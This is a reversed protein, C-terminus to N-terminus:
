LWLKVLFIILCRKFSNSILFIFWLAIVKAIVVSMCLILSGLVLDLLDGSDIASWLHPAGRAHCHRWPTHWVDICKLARWVVESVVVMHFTSYISCRTILVNTWILSVRKLVRRRSILIVKNLRFIFFLCFPNTRRHSQLEIYECVRVLLDSCIYAFAACANILTRLILYLVLARSLVWLMRMATRKEESKVFSCILLGRTCHLCRCFIWRPVIIIKVSFVRLM